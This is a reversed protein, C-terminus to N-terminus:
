SQLPSNFYHARIQLVKGEKFTWTEILTSDFRAGTACLVARLKFEFALRDPDESRYAHVPELIEIDFTEAFLGLFELFGDAGRYVGAFPLGSGEHLEFGPDALARITDGDGAFVATVFQEQVQLNPNDTM